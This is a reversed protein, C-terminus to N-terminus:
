INIGNATYMVKEEPLAPVNARHFKSLFMVKNIKSVRSDNYEMANQLDHNWLYTKKAKIPMDFLGVQRWSVLINFTDQWNVSYYPVYNVGEYNGQEDQPDAYVTVRWGLKALEKSLYIVAEESGGIGKAISKPSWKEWGAGCWIAIEDKDWVRPPYLEQRLAVLAPEMEIERPISNILARLQEVQGTQKLHSALKVTWHALNNRHRLDQIDKLRDMNLDSPLLNVLGQAVKETEELKNTNLYIHYLCELLMSKYDKPNVVLTTKPIDVSGALKVYHNAFDWEKLMVYNLALQIYPSPFLPYEGLSELLCQIAKKFEQRERHIMSLYEWAQAREERWGSKRIYDKLLEITISDVGEGASEYLIEPIKTDFYAKALYYIPRPDNPNRIVEDELIEINRWMADQMSNFDTLHVVYFDQTDFKSTPYQEILTEHIPAIWKHSDDNKILRERLHEILINKINGKEDAEVQYLYRAFVSQCNNAEALQAQKHLNEGGVLIDDADMWFIWDYEKPVQSFNFNRAASFDKVWPFWSWNASYKTCVKQIKKYPKKTSTIYIADVHQYVTSLCRDLEKAETDDKIIVALAIKAM